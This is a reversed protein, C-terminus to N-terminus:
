KNTNRLNTQEGAEPVKLNNSGLREENSAQETGSELDSLLSTEEGTNAVMGVKSEGVCKVM